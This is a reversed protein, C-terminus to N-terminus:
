DDIWIVYQRKAMVKVQAVATALRLGSKGATHSKNDGDGGEVADTGMDPVRWVAGAVNCSTPALPFLLQLCKLLSTVSWGPGTGPGTSTGSGSKAYTDSGLNTETRAPIKSMCRRLTCIDAGSSPSTIAHSNRALASIVGSSPPPTPSNVGVGRAWCRTYTDKPLLTNSTDISDGNNTSTSISTSTLKSAILEVLDEELRLNAPQVKVAVCNPNFKRLWSRLAAFQSISDSDRDRGRDRDRDRDTDTDASRMRMNLAAKEKLAKLANSKDVSSQTLVNKGLRYSTNTASNLLLASNEQDKDKRKSNFSSMDSSGGGSQVDSRGDVVVAVDCVCACAHLPHVGSARWTEGGLGRSAACPRRVVDGEEDRAATNQPNFSTHGDALVSHPVLLTIVCGISATSSSSKGRGRGRRGSESRFGSVLLSIIDEMRTSVLPNTTISVVLAQTNHFYSTDCTRWAEMIAKAPSFESESLDVKVAGSRQKNTNNSNLNITLNTNNNNNNSLIRGLRHSLQNGLLDVGAGPHGVVLCLKVNVDVAAAAAAIVMGSFVGGISMSTSMSM